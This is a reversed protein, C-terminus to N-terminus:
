DESQLEEPSVIVDVLGGSRLVTLTLARRIAGREGSKSDPMM